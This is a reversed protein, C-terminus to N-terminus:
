GRWTVSWTCVYSVYAKTERLSHSLVDLRVNWVRVTEVHREVRSRVGRHPHPPDGQLLEVSSIGGHKERPIFRCGTAHGYWQFAADYQRSGEM